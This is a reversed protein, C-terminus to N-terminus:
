QMQIKKSLSEVIEGNKIVVIEKATADLYTGDAQDQGNIFLGGWDKYYIPGDSLVDDVTYAFGELDNAANAAQRFINNAYGSQKLAINHEKTGPELSSLYRTNKETIGPSFEKNKYAELDRIRAAIIRKEAISEASELQLKLRDMAATVSKESQLDKFDFGKEQMLEKFAMQTAADFRGEERNSAADELRERRIDARDKEKESRSPKAILDEAASGLMTGVTAGPKQSKAFISLGLDSLDGIRAKKLREASREDAKALREALREDSGQSMAEFYSDALEKYGVAGGDVTEEGEVETVGVPIEFDGEAADQGGGKIRNAEAEEARQRDRIKKVEDLGEQDIIAQERANYVPNDIYSKIREKNRLEVENSPRFQLKGDEDFYTETGMEAEEYEDESSIQPILEASMESALPLVDREYIRKFDKQNGFFPSDKDEFETGAMYDIFRNGGKELPSQIYNMYLDKLTSNLQATNKGFGSMFVKKEAMDKIDAGTIGQTNPAASYGAPYIPGGVNYGVRGGDALGSAIGTGYSSVPGGRFMPRRLIKSM